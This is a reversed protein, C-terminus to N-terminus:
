WIFFFDFRKSFHFSVLVKSYQSRFGAFFAPIFSFFSNWLPVLFSSLVCSCRLSGMLSIFEQATKSTLYESFNKLHISSSWSTSLHVLCNVITYFAKCRLASMSQLHWSFFFYFTKGPNFIANIYRYLSVFIVYVIMSLSLNCHGAVICVVYVDVFFFISLLCSCPKILRSVLPIKCSFVHVHNFFPFRLLSVSEKRIAACFLATLVLYTLALISLVRCFLLHWNRQSPSLVILWM